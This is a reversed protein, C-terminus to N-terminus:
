CAIVFNFSLAVVAYAILHWITLGKDPKWRFFRLRSAGYLLAIGALNLAWIWWGVSALLQLVPNPLAFTHWFLFSHFEFALFVYPILVYLFRVVDLRHAVIVLPVLFNVAIWKAHWCSAIQREYTCAPCAVADTAVLAFLLLWVGTKRFM